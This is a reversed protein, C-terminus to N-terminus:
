KKNTSKFAILAIGGTIVVALIILITKLQSQDAAVNVTPLTVYKNLDLGSGTSPNATYDSNPYQVTNTNTTPNSLAGGLAGGIVQGVSKGGFLDKIFSM